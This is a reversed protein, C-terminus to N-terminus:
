LMIAIFGYNNPPTCSSAGARFAGRAAMYLPWAQAIASIELIFKVNGGCRGIEGGIKM